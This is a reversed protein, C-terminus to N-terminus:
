DLRCSYVQPIQPFHMKDLLNEKSVEMNIANDSALGQSRSLWGIGGGLILGTVGVSPCGGGVFTVNAEKILEQAESWLAGAEAVISMSEADFHLKKMLSMDILM